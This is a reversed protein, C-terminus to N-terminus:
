KLLCDGDINYSDFALICKANRDCKDCTIYEFNDSLETLIHKISDSLEVIQDETLPVPRTWEDSQIEEQVIKHDSQTSVKLPIKLKYLTNKTEIDGTILDYALVTSTHVHWDEVTPNRPHNHACLYAVQGVVIPNTESYLVTKKDM